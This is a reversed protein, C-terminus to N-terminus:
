FIHERTTQKLDTELNRQNTFCRLVIYTSKPDNKKLSALNNILVLEMLNWIRKAVKEERKPIESSMANLIVIFTKLNIKTLDNMMIQYAVQAAQDWFEKCKDNKLSHIGQHKATSLLQSLDLLHMDEVVGKKQFINKAFDLFKDEALINM